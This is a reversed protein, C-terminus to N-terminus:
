YTHQHGKAVLTNLTSLNHVAAGITNNFYVYVAKNESLWNTIYESYEALMDDTYSGRYGGNPGHFRLYTFNAATELVPTASAPLDHIVLGSYYKDLLDYTKNTYWSKHRFEIAIHCQLSTNLYTLLNLLGELQGIANIQLGPPFQVLLCGAKIGANAIVDMFKEVDTDQYRLEKNHTIERWLKFTFRFNDPVSETWKKVTTDMPLKYFSSNIEISNFLSGYYHLRTKDQFDPPFAQKNSVPLVLGSTGSFFHDPLQHAQM